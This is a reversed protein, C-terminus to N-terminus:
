YESSCHLVRILHTQVQFNEDEDNDDDETLQMRGADLFVSPDPLLGLFTGIRDDFMQVIGKAVCKPLLFLDAILRIHTRRDVKHGEANIFWKHM